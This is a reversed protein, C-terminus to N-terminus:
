DVNEKRLFIPGGSEFRLETEDQMALFWLGICDEIDDVIQFSFVVKPEGEVQSVFEPRKDLEFVALTLTDSGEPNEPARFTKGRDTHLELSIIRRDEEKVALVAIKEGEDLSLSYVEDSVSGLRTTVGLDYVFEIGVLARGVFYVHIHLLVQVEDLDSGFAWMMDRLEEYPTARWHMSICQHQSPIEFKRNRGSSTIFEIGVVKGFKEMRLPTQSELTSWVEIHTLYEGSALDFSGVEHIWQGLVVDEGQYYEIWLGSINKTSRSRGPLGSSVRIRKIWRLSAGGSCSGGSGLMWYASFLIWERNAELTNGNRGLSEEDEVPITCHLTETGNLVHLSEWPTHPPECTAVIAIPLKDDSACISMSSLSGPPRSVGGHVQFNMSRNSYENAESAEISFIISKRYTSSRTRRVEFSTIREGGKGDVTFTPELCPCYTGNEEELVSDKGIFIDESNDYGFRFGHFGTRSFVYATIRNLSSLKQGNDGGFAMHLRLPFGCPYEYVGLLPPQLQAKKELPLAVPNWLLHTSLAKPLSGVGDEVIKIAVAKFEDFDIVMGTANKRPRLVTKGFSGDLCSTVGVAVSAAEGCNDLHFVLGHIGLDSATVEVSVIKEASQIEIHEETSPIITGISVPGSAQGSHDLCYSRFGSIFVKSNFHVLSVSLKLSVTPTPVVLNIQMRAIPQVGRRLQPERFDSDILLPCSFSCRTPKNPTLDQVSSQFEESDTLLRTDPHLLQETTLAFDEVCLYMRQRNRIGQLEEDSSLAETYQKYLLRWDKKTDSRQPEEHAFVFGLEHPPAFRTAWFKQPLLKPTSISAVTRCALRFNAFDKSSLNGLIQCIIEQPIRDFVNELSDRKVLDLDSRSAEGSQVSNDPPPLVGTPAVLLLPLEDEDKRMNTAGHYHNDPVLCHFSARPLSDFQWFLAEALRADESEAPLNCRVRFKFLRWCSEHVGYAQPRFTDPDHFLSIEEVEDLDEDVLPPFNANPGVDGNHNVSIHFEHAYGVPSLTVHRRSEDVCVARAKRHGPVPNFVPQVDYREFPGGCCACFPGVSM